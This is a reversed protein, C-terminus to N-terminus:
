RQESGREKREEQSAAQEQGPTEKSTGLNMKSPILAGWQEIEPYFLRSFYFGIIIVLLGRTALPLRLLFSRIRRADPIYQAYSAM